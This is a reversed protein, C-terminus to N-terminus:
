SDNFQNLWSSPIFASLRVLTELIQPREHSDLPCIYVMMFDQPLDWMSDAGYASPDAVVSLRRCQLTRLLARQAPIEVHELGSIVLAKPLGSVGPM